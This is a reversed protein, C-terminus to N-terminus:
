PVYPSASEPENGCVGTTTASDGYIIKWEFSYFSVARGQGSKRCQAIRM